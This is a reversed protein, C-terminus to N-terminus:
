ELDSFRSGHCGCAGGWARGRCTSGALLQVGALPHTTGLHVLSWHLEISMDHAGAAVGMKGLFTLSMGSLPTTVCGQRSM